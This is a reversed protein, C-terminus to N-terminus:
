IYSTFWGLAVVQKMLKIVTNQQSLMVCSSVHWTDETVCLILMYLTAVAPLDSEAAPPTHTHIIFYVYDVGEWWLDVHKREPGHKLLQYVYVNV